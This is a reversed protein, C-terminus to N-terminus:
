FVVVDVEDVFVVFKPLFLLATAVGIYTVMDKDEHSDIQPIM